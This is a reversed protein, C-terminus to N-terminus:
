FTYTVTTTSSTGNGDSQKFKFHYTHSGVSGPNRVQTITTQGNPIIDTRYPKDEDVDLWYLDVNFGNPNSVYIYFTSADSSTTCTPAKLTVSTGNYFYKYQGYDATECNVEWMIPSNVFAGTTAITVKENAAVTIGTKSFEGGFAYGSLKSFTVSTSNNNQLILHYYETFKDAPRSTSDTPPTAAGSSDTDKKLTFTINEWIPDDSYDNLIKYEVPTTILESVSSMTAQLQAYYPSNSNYDVGDNETSTEFSKTIEITTSSPTVNKKPDEDDAGEIPTAAPINETEYRGLEYLAGDARVKGCLNWSAFGAGDATVIESLNVGAAHFLPVDFDNYNKITLKLKYTAQAM